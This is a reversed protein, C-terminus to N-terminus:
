QQARLHLTVLLRDDPDSFDLGSLQEARGVRYRVTNPHVDIAKAAQRVNLGADLYARISEVLGAGHQSDYEVLNQVRPDSLDGEAAILDLVESLLVSTREQDLSTVRKTLGRSADLVRDAEERGRAAQGLGKVPHVVAAGLQRARVGPDADLRTLIQEVWQAVHREERVDSIALYIREGILAMVANPSYAKVRFMLKRTIDTMDAASAEGDARPGIGVIAGRGSSPIGLYDSATSADIGGHEGFLRRAMMEEASPAELKRMLIHAASIAAGRVLTAADEHFGHDGQQVWISGLFRGDPAHVGTVLRKNMGLDEYQDVTVVESSNRIKELVGWEALKMMSDDPASRGLIARIRLADASGESESYALVGADAGEILAMGGTGEGIMASLEFLDTVSTRRAENGSQPTQIRARELRQQILTLMVDWRAFEDVIILSVGAAVAIARLEESDVYQKILIASPIAGPPRQSLQRLWGVLVSGHVGVPLVLDAALENRSGPGMEGADIMAVTEVSVEGGQSTWAADHVTTDLVAIIEALSVATEASSGDAKMGVTM